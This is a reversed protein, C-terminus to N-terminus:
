QVNWFYNGEKSDICANGKCAHHSALKAGVCFYYIENEDFFLEVDICRQQCGMM